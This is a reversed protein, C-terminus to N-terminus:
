GEAKNVTFSICTGVGLQSEAEIHGGSLVVLDKVISLGLGSSEQSLSHVDSRYFKDFIYPLEEEAIGIGTDRISIRILHGEMKAMVNITGNPDTYKVSNSLINILIQMLRDRDMFVMIDNKVQNKVAINKQDAKGKIMRIAEVTVQELQLSENKLQVFGSQIKAKDLLETTLNVLRKTEGHIIQLYEESDEKPIIGDLIGEVFGGISTLPTRLEHSVSAIFDRRVNENIDLQEKMNNFSHALMGIEDKSYVTIIPANEGKAISRAAKEIHEIPKSIKRSSLLIVPISMMFIAGACLWLLQNMQMINQNINNIPCFMLIAGEIKSNIKLPYGMYAVYTELKQSYENKRFVQKGDLIYSLDEYIFDDTFGQSSLVKEETFDEKKIKIVYIMADASYSMGNISANLDNYNIQGEEYAQTLIGTRKAISEFSAKKDAMVIEKYITSIAVTLILIILLIIVFYTVLLRSFISKM